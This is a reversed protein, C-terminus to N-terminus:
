YLKLNVVKAVREFDRDRSLLYLKHEIATQAILCDMTSSITYGDMRCEFFIRAAQECSHKLDSLYYFRLTNLYDKLRQFDAGSKAGQLVEQYVFPSIGFSLKDDLISQFKDVASNEADSLYDILVSTDVLIM